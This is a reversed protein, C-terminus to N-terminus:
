SSHAQNQKMEPVAQGRIDCARWEVAASLYGASNHLLCRKCGVRGGRGGVLVLHTIYPFVWRAVRTSVALPHVPASLLLVSRGLFIKQNQCTHRPFALSLFFRTTCKYSFVVLPNNNKPALLPCIHKEPSWVDSDFPTM